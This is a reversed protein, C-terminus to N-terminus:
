GVYHSPQEALQQKNLGYDRLLASVSVASLAFALAVRPLLSLHLEAMLLSASIGLLGLLLSKTLHNAMMM